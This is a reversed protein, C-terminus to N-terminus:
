APRNNEVFGISIAAILYLGLFVEFALDYQGTTDFIWGAFPIGMVMIPMMAPRMLGMIYGFGAQGFLASVISGHIPVIGGMGFGFITSGIILVSYTDANLLIIQGALQSAIAAWIAWKANYHDTIWGYIVKGLVGAAAGFSLIPAAETLSYGMDTVRPVMHTLTAGM